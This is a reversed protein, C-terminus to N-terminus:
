MLRQKDPMLIQRICLLSVEERLWSLLLFDAANTTGNM